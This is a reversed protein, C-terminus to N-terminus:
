AAERRSRNILLPRGIRQLLIAAISGSFPRQSESWGHSAMAVLDVGERDAVDLITKAVDGREVIIKTHIDEAGLRDVIGSLYTEAEQRLKKRTQRYNVPDIVEDWGLLCSPEEVQLLIVTANYRCAMSRVIPLISESRISGDLPVLIKKYM